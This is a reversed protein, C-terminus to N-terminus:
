HGLHVKSALFLAGWLRTCEALIWVDVIGVLVDDIQLLLDM